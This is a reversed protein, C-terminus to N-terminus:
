FLTKSFRYQIEFWQYKREKGLNVYFYGKLGVHGYGMGGVHIACVAVRVMIIGCVCVCM